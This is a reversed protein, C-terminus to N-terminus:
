NSTEMINILINLTLQQNCCQINTNFSNLFSACKHRFYEFATVSDKQCRLEFCEKLTDINNFRFTGPSRRNFVKNNAPEKVRRLVTLENFKRSEFAKLLIANKRLKLLLIVLNILQNIVKYCTSVKRRVIFLRL